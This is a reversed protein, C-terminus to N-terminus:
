HLRIHEFNARQSGPILISSGTLTMIKKRMHVKERVYIGQLASPRVVLERRAIRKRDHRHRVSHRMPGQLRIVYSSPEKVWQGWFKLADSTRM